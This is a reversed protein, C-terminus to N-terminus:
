ILELTLFFEYASDSIHILGRERYQRDETVQLSEKYNSKEELISFPTIVNEELLECMAHNKHVASTTSDSFSFMNEKVYKRSNELVKRIAWGGVHRVKAKGEDSMERVSFVVPEEQQQRTVNSALHELFLLYIGSVLEGGVVCQTTSLTNTAFLGKLYEIYTDSGMFNHLDGTAGTFAQRTINVIVDEPNDIIHSQLFMFCHYWILNFFPIINNSMEPSTRLEPSTVDNKLQQNPASPPDVAFSSLLQGVNVSEPPTAFQSESRKLTDYINLLDQPVFVGEKEFINAVLDDALSSQMQEEDHDEASLEKVETTHNAADHVEFMEPRLRRHRCCSQTGVVEGLHSGSQSLVEPLPALLYNPNFNKMQLHTASKVRSAAVYTLGSVFEQSCHVIASHLTQGQSKHCTVAYAPVVPYQTLKGIIRGDNGRKLWTERTVSITGVTPFTVQLNGDELNHFIGHTGNKLSSSKNWVHMVRCEPKLFLVQWAPSMVRKSNGEKTAELKLFDGPLERLASMNHLQASIKKFFIHVASDKLEDAVLDRSLSRLYELTESSRCQGVRLERLASLFEHDGDGQRLLKSLNLRHPICAQFVPSEFMFHGADFENPVPRLQLFEGVVIMQKGAFPYLREDNTSEHHIANVLEFIRRSSMSAEDWIIADVEQLRKMVLSNACSRGVVTPWPHDATQLAYFSHVTSASVECGDYVTCSLGSSCVVGVKLKARHLNLIISQVIFSKGTGAQGTIFLNHGRNM